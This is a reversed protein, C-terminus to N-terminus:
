AALAFNDEANVNLAYKILSAVHKGRSAEWVLRVGTSAM